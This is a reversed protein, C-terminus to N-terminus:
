AAALEAELARRDPSVKLIVFEAPAATAVSLRAYVQRAFKVSAPNLGKGFDLNFAEAPDTSAFAENRCQQLMFAQATKKGENYLRTNIRKHRMFTLGQKLSAELFSVGRREGITPFNGNDKLCRAGDVFIPQGPETSIPNILEPFVIERKAKKKVEPMELGRVNFLKGNDVGAPHEFVGSPTAADVRAYLGAIAGSPPAVITDTNGFVAKSPNDILVNPWYIAGHESLRQIGATNKVYSVMQTASQNRPPDFIGFVLGERVIECYTIMGNHVSATARGPVALLTLNQVEDLCRLGVSGESGTGGVYDTDALGALGDNGGTLPGFTGLAPLNSPSDLAVEHDTIKIYASGTGDANIVTVVYRADTPSLSLNAFSEVVTGNYSVKLNFRDAEASTAAELITSVNNGYAGDYKADATLTTVAGGAGGTHTANDFGFEDDASSAAAVLVKSGTGTTNSTVKAAGGVNTVTCGTVAAEIVTKAETFTVADINSVNGTGAVNGTTFTLLVNATGGSVNVGSGTGRRDSRITVKNTNSVFSQAGRIQAAIVAAVEAATAAAPDVFNGDTFTIPQVTGGDIAVNLVKGGSFDWPGSSSERAAATALFTATTPSGPVNADVAIQLTDGPELDWPGTNSSTISGASAALAATALNLTAATSTKSTPDTSTTHHVTRVFHLETGGNEFFMKVALSADSSAIHGGFIREWEDYGNAIVEQDVPGKLSIGLMGLVATALSPIGRVAPAEEQVLVDSALLNPM